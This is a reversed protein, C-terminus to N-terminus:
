GTPAMNSDDEGDVPPLMGTGPTAEPNVKTKSQSGGAPADARGENGEALEREIVHLDGEAPKKRRQHSQTKEAPM